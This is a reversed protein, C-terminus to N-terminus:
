DSTVPPIRRASLAAVFDQHSADAIGALVCQSVLASDEALLAKAELWLGPFSRSKYLDGEQQSQQLRDDVRVFWRVMNSRVLVVVYEQVGNREYERLKVGTDRAETSDAVEVVLEPAGIVAGRSDRRTQGGYETRVGLMGDPQVETADGLITTGDTGSFVGPTHEVYHMLWHTVISHLTFHRDFVPSVVFVRGDILEARFGEPMACYREHFEMQLLLEGQVLPRIDTSADTAMRREMLSCVFVEGAVSGSLDM